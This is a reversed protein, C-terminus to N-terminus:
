TWLREGQLRYSPDTEIAKELAAREAILPRKYDSLMRRDEKTLTKDYFIAYNISYLLETINRFRRLTQDPIM